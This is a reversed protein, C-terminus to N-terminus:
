RDIPKPAEFHLLMPCHDSHRAEPLIVAKKLASKLKENAFIYDIRWGKNNARANARMSWWTYQHPEQNFLRFSDVYDKELFVDMWAREEPLFGSSKKNGVPDHIDIPKHCINIDGCIFVPAIQPQLERMYGNFFELFQMKVDQRLDGSSGSPFYTSMISFTGFDARLVRGEADFLPHGCGFSVAEPKRKSLLATGSYGKKQAPYWHCHYGLAEFQGVDFQEPNAKIEQFCIFDADVARLWDVLGKNMASRIGNVNYTLIKLTDPTEM